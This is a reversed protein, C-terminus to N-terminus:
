SACAASVKRGPKVNGRQQEFMECVLCLYCQPPHLIMYHIKEIGTPPELHLDAAWDWVVFAPPVGSGPGVLNSKMVRSGPKVDFM